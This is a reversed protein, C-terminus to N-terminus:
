GTAKRGHGLKHPDTNQPAAVDTGGEDIQHHRLLGGDFGTSAHAELHTRDGNAVEAAFAIDIQGFAHEGAVSVRDYGIGRDVQDDLYDAPDLRRALQDGRRQLRALGHDGGVLLQQGVDAGFQEADAVVGAHIQQEFGGYGTADGDDSGQALAQAALGDRSDHPDDIAGGVEDEGLHGLFAGVVADGEGFGLRQSEGFAVRRGVDLAEIGAGLRRDHRRD